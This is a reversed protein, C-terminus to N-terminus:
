STLTVTVPAHDSPLQGKREDRDIDAAVCRDAVPQTALIHDIRLGDNRVFGLQRYDWWSYVGGKSHHKRFCDVLGWDLLHQLRTRADVHCLVSDSWADPNAVDHDDRAINLDGCVVLPERVSHHRQLYAQLRDLWALKYQYKDTGVAAGNPVYVCIVRMGAVMASIFRAQPDDVGDEMGCHIDAIPHAARALIAVGNYTPQGFVAAHYGCQKMADLPFKETVMKLEQLCVVDPQHRELWAMVREHRAKISNVNWTVIRLSTHSAHSGQSATTQKDPTM